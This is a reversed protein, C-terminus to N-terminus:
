KSKMWKNYEAKSLSGDGNRDYRSFSDSSVDTSYAQVEALSLGGSRDADLDRFRESATMGGSSGTAGGGAAGGPGSQSPTSGVSPTSTSGENQM